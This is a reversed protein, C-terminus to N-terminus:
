ISKRSGWEGTLLKGIGTVIRGLSILITGALIFPAKLLQIVADLLTELIDDKGDEDASAFDKAKNKWHARVNPDSHSDAVNNMAKFIKEEAEKKGKADGAKSADKYLM